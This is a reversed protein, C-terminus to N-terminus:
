GLEGALYRDRAARRRLKGSTTKPITHPAIPVVTVDVGHERAVAERAAALAAELGDAGPDRVEQVLVAHETGEREVAFAAGRGPRLEGSARQATEELDHPHLNRGRVIILDKLRGTPYLEGDRVFALDGTRLWPGDGADTRAGFVEETLEEDRWYGAAVSPGRLWLEGVEGDPLPARTEPDVILLEHGAVPRGCAVVPREAGRGCTVMCVAEALGYAPVSAERRFGAPAFAAAFRDLTEARVPEAANFAVAWSSLDLRDREDFTVRRACLEYAFNPAGAHTARHETIAELWVAPRRLFDLPSLVVGKLGIWVPAAVSSVLGMDHYLPSWSVGVSSEDVALGEALVRCQAVLNGHTIAVGKPRSTSGSTYQILALTDEHVHPERWASPDGTVDEVTLAGPLTDQLSPVTLTLRLGPVAPPRHPYAPVPVAGAYLAGYFADHFELGPPFVLLVPEGPGVREALGAAIGRAREDLQAPTRTHSAFELLTRDPEREARRRLAAVLDPGM